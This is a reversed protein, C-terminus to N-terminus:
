LFRILLLFLTILTSSVLKIILIKKINLKYENLISITQFIISLGSFLMIFVTLIIKSYYDINLSSVQLVGNTNELMGSIISTILPSINFYKTFLNIIITFIIINGLIIISTNFGKFISDKLTDIINKKSKKEYNLSITNNNKKRLFIGILINNLLIILWIILGVLLSNYLYIGITGFVFSLSPFYTYTLINQATNKDIEKKDLMNKIFIANTPYSTLMSLIFIISTNPSLNFLASIYKGFVKELFKHYDYYLLIDSLIIFPFVSIFVKTIFMECAMYTSTLVININLLFIIIVISLFLYKLKILLKNM